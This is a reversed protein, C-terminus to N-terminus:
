KLNAFGMTLGSIDHDIYRGQFFTQGILWFGNGFEDNGFISATCNNGTSNFKLAEPLIEFITSQHSITQNHHQKASTANTISPLGFGFNPPNDCPYYGTLEPFTDTTQNPTLVSQIGAADFMAQVGDVPGIIVSTGSDFIFVSDRGVVEGNAALDGMAFWQVYAEYEFDYYVSTVSLDGEFRDHEIKGLYQEGTGDTELALGFRCEDLSGQHCLTAFWTTSNLSDPFMPIDDALGIIGDFPCFDLTAAGLAQSAVFLGTGDLSVLDKFIPGTVNEFGSGDPNTSGFEITFNSNMTQSAPSPKYKGPNLLVDSSGTDVLIELGSTAGITFNAFWWGEYSFEFSSGFCRGFRSRNLGLTCNMVEEVRWKFSM